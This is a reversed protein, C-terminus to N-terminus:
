TASPLSGCRHGKHLADFKGLAVIARETRGARTALGQLPARWDDLSCEEVSEKSTGAPNTRTNRMCM